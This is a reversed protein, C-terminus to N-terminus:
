NTFRRYNITPRNRRSPHNAKQSTPDPLENKNAHRHQRLLAQHLPRADDAYYL